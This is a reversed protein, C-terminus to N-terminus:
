TMCCIMRVMWGRAGQVARLKREFEFGGQKKREVGRREDCSRTTSVGIM